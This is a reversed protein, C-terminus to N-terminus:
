ELFKLVHFLLLWLPLLYTWRPSGKDHPFAHQQRPNWPRPANIKFIAVVSSVRMNYLIGFQVSVSCSSYKGVVDANTCPPFSDDVGPSPRFARDPVTLIDTISASGRLAWLMSECGLSMFTAIYALSAADYQPKRKFWYFYVTLGRIKRWWPYGSM